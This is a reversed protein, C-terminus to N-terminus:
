DIESYAQIWEQSLQQDLWEKKIREIEHPDCDKTKPCVVTDMKFTIKNDYHIMCPYMRCEFPRESYATCCHRNSDYFICNGSEDKSLVMLERNNIRLTTSYDKFKDIEQPTLVVFLERKQSTCCIGDCNKCDISLM